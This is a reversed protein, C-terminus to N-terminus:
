PKKIKNVRRLHRFKRPTSGVAFRRIVVFILPESSKTCRHYSIAQVHTERAVDKFWRFRGSRESGMRKGLQSLFGPPVNNKLQRLDVRPGPSAM